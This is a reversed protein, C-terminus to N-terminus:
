RRNQSWGSVMVDVVPSWNNRRGTFKRVADDIKVTKNTWAAVLIRVQVSSKGQKERTITLACCFCSVYFNYLSMRTHSQPTFVGDRVYM